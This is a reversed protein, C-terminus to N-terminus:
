KKIDTIIDQIKNKVMNVRGHIKNFDYNFENVTNKNKNTTFFSKQVKVNYNAMLDALENYETYTTELQKLVDNLRKFTTSNNREKLELLSSKKKFFDLQEIEILNNNTCTSLDTQLLTINENLKSIQSTVYESTESAERQLKSLEETLADHAGNTSTSTTKLESLQNTIDRKEAMCETIDDNLKTKDNRLSKLEDLKDDNLQILESYKKENISITNTLKSIESSLDGINDTNDALKKKCGNIDDTLNTITTKLNDILSDNQPANSTKKLEHLQDTMDDKKAMCKSLDDNLKISYNASENKDTMCKSLDGNLKINVDNLGNLETKIQKLQLILNDQTRPNRYEAMKKNGWTFMRNQAGYIYENINTLIGSMTAAYAGGQVQKIFILFNTSHTEKFGAFGDTYFKRIIIINKDVLDRFLPETFNYDNIAIKIKDEVGKILATEDNKFKLIDSEFKQIIRTNNESQRQQQQQQRQQFPQQSSQQSQQSSQPRSQQSQQSSQPWSYIGKQLIFPVMYNLENPFEVYNAFKTLDFGKVFDPVSLFASETFDFDRNPTYGSYVPPAFGYRYDQDPSSVLDDYHNVIDEYFTILNTYLTLIELKELKEDDSIETNSKYKDMIALQGPRGAVGGVALKDTHLHRKIKIFLKAYNMDQTMAPEVGMFYDFRKNTSIIDHTLNLFKGVFTLKFVNPDKITTFPDLFWSLVTKAAAEINEKPNGGIKRSSKKHSSKKHSSKKRSLKKRSSKKHSLKKRSSKKHLLKKRSSKKYM